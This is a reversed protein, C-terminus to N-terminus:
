SRHSALSSTFCPLARASPSVYRRFCSSRWRGLEMIQQDSLGAAAASTASGRRFSHGSYPSPPLGVRAVCQRLLRVVDVATVSRERVLFAPADEPAPCISQFAHFLCAPCLPEGTCGVRVAVGVGFPDTKSKRLTICYVGSDAEFSFDSRRLPPERNLSRPVLEGLRFCGFVAISMVAWLCLTFADSMVAHGFLQRLLPVTVYGRNAAPSSRHLRFARLSLRFGASSLFDVSFGGCLYFHRVGNIYNVATSSRLGANWIWVLFEQIVM